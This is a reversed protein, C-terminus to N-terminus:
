EGDDNGALWVASAEPGIFGEAKARRVQEMLLANEIEEMRRYESYSVMVAVPRGSREIVIPGDALDAICSGFHQKVYTANLSNM